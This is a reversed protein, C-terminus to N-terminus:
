KLISVQSYEQQKAQKLRELTIINVTDIGNYEDQPKTQLSYNLVFGHM